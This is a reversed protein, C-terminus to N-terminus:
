TKYLRLHPLVDSAKDIFMIGDLHDIEHLLTAALFGDGKVIIPTGNRDVGSVTVRNPRIVTGLPAGPAISGELVTQM